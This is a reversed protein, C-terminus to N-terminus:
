SIKLNGCSPLILSVLIQASSNTLHSPGCTSNLSLSENSRHATFLLIQIKCIFNSLAVMMVMILSVIAVHLDGANVDESLLVHSLGVFKRLM